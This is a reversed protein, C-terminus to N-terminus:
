AEEGQLYNIGLYRDTMDLNEQRKRESELEIQKQDLYRKLSEIRQYKETLASRLRERDESLKRQENVANDRQDELKTMISNGMQGYLMLTAPGQSFQQLTTEIERNCELLRNSALEYQHDIAMWEVKIAQLEQEHLGILRKLKKIGQHLSM